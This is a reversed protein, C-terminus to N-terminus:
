RSKKIVCLSAGCDTHSWQVLSWDTASVEVKCCVVSVVSLCGHGPHSEFGCDWCALPRLDRPWQPWCNTLLQRKNGTSCAMWLSRIKCCIHLTSRFMQLNLLSIEPMDTSVQFHHGFEETQTLETRFTRTKHTFYSPLSLINSMSVLLFGVVLSSVLVNRSIRFLNEM